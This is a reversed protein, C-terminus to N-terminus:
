GLVPVGADSIKQKQYNINLLTALKRLRRGFKGSFQIAAESIKQEQM